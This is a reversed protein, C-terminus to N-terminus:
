SLRKRAIDVAGYGGDNANPRMAEETRRVYEQKAEQDEDYWDKRIRMLVAKMGGGVSLQRVKGLRSNDDLRSDGVRVDESLDFEWGLELLDNIRDETDNVIRYVYNPDKGKVTLRNRGEVPNRKVRREPAKVLKETAM